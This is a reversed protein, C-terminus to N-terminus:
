TENLPTARLMWGKGRLTLLWQPNRPNDEIKKRLRAIGVDISRNNFELNLSKCLEVRNKEIGLNQALGYASLGYPIGFNVEKAKRRHDSTVEALSDLHFIEKELYNAM